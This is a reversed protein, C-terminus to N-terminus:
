GNVRQIPGVMHGANTFFRSVDKEKDAIPAINEASVLKKM